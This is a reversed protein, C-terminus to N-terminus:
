KDENKLPFRAPSRIVSLVVRLHAATPTGECQEIEKVAREGCLKRCMLAAGDKKHVNPEGDRFLKEYNALQVRTAERVSSSLDGELSRVDVLFREIREDMPYGEGGGRTLRTVRPNEWESNGRANVYQDTCGLGCDLVYAAGNSLLV